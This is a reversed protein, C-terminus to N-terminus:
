DGRVCRVSIGETYKVSGFGFYDYSGLYFFRPYGLEDKEDSWFEAVEIDPGSSFKFSGDSGSRASSPRLNLGSLNTSGGLGTKWQNVARLNRAPFSGFKGTVELIEKPHPLRWGDPCIDCCAAHYNYLKGYNENNGSDNNRWSYAPGKASTWDANSLTLPIATGDKKRTTRLNEAMWWLNGIKVTKYINGDIDTLTGSEPATFKVVRECNQADTVKVEYQGPSLNQSLNGRAGNSWLIDYPLQGYKIDLFHTNDIFLVETLIPCTVELVISFELYLHISQSVILLELNFPQQIGNLSELKMTVTEQSINLEVIRINPNDYFPQYWGINSIPRKSVEADDPPIILPNPNLAPLDWEYADIYIKVLDAFVISSNVKYQFASSLLSYNFDNVILDSTTLSKFLGIYSFSITENSEIKLTEEQNIINGTESDRLEFGRFLPCELTLLAYYEHLLKQYWFSLAIGSLVAEHFDNKPLAKYNLHYVNDFSAFKYTLENLIYHPSNKCELELKEDFNPNLRSNLGNQLTGALFDKEGDSLSSQKQNFFEIWQNFPGAYEKLKEVGSIKSQLERSTKILGNLFDTTNLNKPGKKLDLNWTITQKALTVKVQAPGEGVNPIIFVLTDGPIRGLSIPVGDITGSFSKDNSKLNSVHIKALQFIEWAVQNEPPLIVLPEEVQDCSLLFSSFAALLFIRILNKM